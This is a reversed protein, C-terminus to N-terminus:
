TSCLLKDLKIKGISIMLYLNLFTVFQFCKKSCLVAIKFILYRKKSRDVYQSPKLPIGVLNQYFFKIDKENYILIVNEDRGFIFCM